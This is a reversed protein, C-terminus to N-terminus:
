EPEETQDDTKRSSDRYSVWVAFKGGVYALVTAFLTHALLMFTTRDPTEKASVPPGIAFGGGGFGQNTTPDYNPVPQGTFSNVYERRVLQEFLPQFMRTTPLKGYPDLESSGVYAHPVVYFSFPILYGIAFSRWKGRGVCAVIALATVVAILLLITLSAIRGGTSLSALGLAVVFLLLMLERVSIQFKM